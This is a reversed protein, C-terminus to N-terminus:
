HISSLTKLLVHDHYETNNIRINLKLVAMLEKELIKPVVEIKIGPTNSISVEQAIFYDPNIEYSVLEIKNSESQPIIEIRQLGPMEKSIRPFVIFPKPFSPNIKYPATAIGKVKIPVEPFRDINTSLFLKRVFEGPSVNPNIKILVIYEVPEESKTQIIEMNLDNDVVDQIDMEYVKNIILPKNMSKQTIHLKREVVDGKTFTGFDIVEPECIFEPEIKAIVKLEIVPNKFDNSFITLTKESVFGAVRTPYLTVLFYGEGDPPITNQGIPITGITCACTTRIDKLNLVSKGRNFVKVKRTTEKDNPVTGLDLVSGTELE